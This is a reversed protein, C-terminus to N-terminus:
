TISGIGDAPLNHYSFPIERPLLSAHDKMPEFSTGEHWENFTAIYVIFVGTSANRLTSNTQVALTTRM